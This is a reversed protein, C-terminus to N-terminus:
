QNHQILTKGCQFCAIVSRKSSTLMLQAIICLCLFHLYFFAASHQFFLVSKVCKQYIKCKSPPPTINQQETWWKQGSQCIEFVRQMAIFSTVSM